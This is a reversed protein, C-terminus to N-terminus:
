KERYANLGLISSIRGLTETMTKVANDSMGVQTLPVFIRFRKAHNYVRLVLRTGKPHEEASFVGKYWWNGMVALTGRARDVEVFGYPLRFRDPGGELVVRAESPDFLFVANKKGVEGASVDTLLRRVKELSAEIVGSAEYVPKAPSGLTRVIARLSTKKWDQGSHHQDTM